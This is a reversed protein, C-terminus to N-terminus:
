GHYERKFTLANYAAVNDAICVGNNSFLYCNNPKFENCSNLMACKPAMVEGIIRIMPDDHTMMARKLNEIEIRTESETSTCLRDGMMKILAEINFDHYWQSTATIERPKGTRDPRASCVYPEVNGHKSRLLQDRVPKSTEFDIRLTVCRIQSHRSIISQRLWSASFEDNKKPRLGMTRLAAERMDRYPDANLIRISKVM